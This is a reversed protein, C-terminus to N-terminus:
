AAPRRCVIGVAKMVDRCIPLMRDLQTLRFMDELGCSANVVAVRGGLMNLRNNLFVMMGLSTSDMAEVNQLDIIVHEGEGRSELEHLITEVLDAADTGWLKSIAVTAVLARDILDFSALEPRIQPEQMTPNAPVSTSPVGAARRPPGGPKPREGRPADGGVFLKRLVDFM